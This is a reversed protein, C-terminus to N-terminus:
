KKLFMGLFLIGFFLISFTALKWYKSFFQQVRMEPFNYGLILSEISKLSAQDKSPSYSNYASDKYFQISNMVQHIDNQLIELVSKDAVSTFRLYGNRGLFCITACIRPEKEKGIRIDEIWYLTHLKSDFHPELAWGNLHIEELNDKIRNANTSDISKIYHDIFYDENLIDENDIFVHGDHFYDITFVIANSSFVPIGKKALIGLHKANSPSEGWYNVVMNLTQISDLFHYTGPTKIKAIREKLEFTGEKFSFESEIDNSIKKIDLSDFDESIQKGMLNSITFISIGLLM